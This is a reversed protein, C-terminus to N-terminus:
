CVRCGHSSEGMVSDDWFSARMNRGQGLVGNKYRCDGENKGSVLQWGGTAAAYAAFKVHRLAQIIMRVDERFLVCTHYHHRGHKFSTSRSGCHEHLRPHPTTPTPHTGPKIM